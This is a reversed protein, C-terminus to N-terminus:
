VPEGEKGLGARVKEGSGPVFHWGLEWSIRTFPFLGVHALKTFPILILLLESSLLHVLYTFSFAWPFFAPHAIGYGSLFPILCLLLLFWDQFTSLFRSAESVLRLLFLALMAIIAAITLGDAVAPYLTPWAIGIGKKILAVHGALFLPVLLMGIHFVVSAITYFTRTGRLGNVPIIWGLSKKFMFKWPVVDDGAKRYARILEVFTVVAQRALGLFFIAFALVLLPGRAFAITSEM